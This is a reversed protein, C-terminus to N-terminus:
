RKSKTQKTQKIQKTKGKVINKSTKKSAKNTVSKIPISPTPSKKPRSKKSTSKILKNITIRPRSKSTANMM